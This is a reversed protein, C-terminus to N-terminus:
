RKRSLCVTVYADLVNERERERERQSLDAAARARERAIRDAAGREERKDEGAGEQRREQAGGRKENSPARGAEQGGVPATVLETAITNKFFLQNTHTDVPLSM